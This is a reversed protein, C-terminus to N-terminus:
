LLKRNGNLLIEEIKRKQEERQKLYKVFAKVIVILIHVSKLTIIIKLLLNESLIDREIQEVINGNNIVNGNLMGTNDNKPESPKSESGGM